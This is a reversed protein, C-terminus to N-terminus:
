KNLRAPNQYGDVMYGIASNSVNRYRTIMLPESAALNDKEGPDSQLDYLEERGDKVRRIYKWYGDVVGIFEDNWATHVIALKERSPSFISEGDRPLSDPLQLLDLISPMIDIHRTISDFVQPEPFIEKSYFLAPVHVNEEYIFLPHNYNGVHQYFAEGHDTVMVFVTNQMLGADELADVFLGMAYDAFHLSNYYRRKIRERDSINAEGANVLPKFDDPIAYPHHPNVPIVNLFFPQDGSRLWDLAPQIMLREDAGWGVDKPYSGTKKLDRYLYMADFQRLALFKDRSAYKLDGTHILANRYGNAKLLEPLTWVDIDHYDAFIMARGYMSYRSSLVSYMTNASLPFNSYHRNLLLGNEALRHMTPLLKKGDFELDFYQMSTSEFFYLIVNYPGKSVEPLPRDRGYWELSDSNYNAPRAQLRDASNRAAASQSFTRRNPAFLLTSVPNANLHMFGSAEAPATAAQTLGFAHALTGGYNIGALFLLLLFANVALKGLVFRNQLGPRGPRQLLRRCVLVLVFLLPLSVAALVLSETSLEARVSKLMVAIGTFQEGGIFEKSFATQYVRLFDATFALFIAVAISLAVAVVSIFAKLWSRLLWFLLLCSFLVVAAKLDHGLADTLVFGLLGTSTLEPHIDLILRVSRVRYVALAILVFLELAIYLPLSHRLGSSWASELRQPTGAQLPSAAPMVSGARSGESVASPNSIRQKEQGSRQQKRRLTASLLRKRHERRKRRQLKPKRSM